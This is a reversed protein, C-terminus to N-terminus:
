DALWDIVTMGLYPITLVRFVKKILGEIEKLICLYFSVKLTLVM